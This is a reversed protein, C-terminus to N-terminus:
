NEIQLIKTNINSLFEKLEDNTYRYVVRMREKRCGCLLDHSIWYNKNWNLWKVFSAYCLNIWFYWEFEDEEVWDREDLMKLWENEYIDKDEFRSAILSREALERTLFNQYYKQLSKLHELDLDVEFIHRANEILMWDYPFVPIKEKSAMYIMMSKIGYEIWSPCAMNVAEAINFGVSVGQHYSGPFTIIMEGPKQITRYVHIGNEVLFAPNIMVNINLLFNPDAEYLGALKEKALKEFKERHYEPIGYWIKGEGEHMYNISYLMIDEYHWCFSSFLMGVYLWSMTIGSIKKDKWFQLLSNHRMHMKNFNWPHDSYWQESEDYNQKGFKNSPLDAAYEVTIPESETNDALDWYMKELEDYKKQSIYEKFKKSGPDIM